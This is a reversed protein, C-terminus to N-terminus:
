LSTVTGTTSSTRHPATYTTATLSGTYSADDLKMRILGGAGGVASSMARSGDSPRILASLGYVRNLSWDTIISTSDLVM